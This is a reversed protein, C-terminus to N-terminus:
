ENSKNKKNTSERAKLKANNEAIQNLTEQRLAYIQTDIEDQQSKFVVCKNVYQNYEKEAESLQMEAINVNSEMAKLRTNRTRIDDKMEKILLRRKNIKEKEILIKPNLEKIESQYTKTKEAYDSKITALRTQMNLYQNTKDEFQAKLDLWKKEPTFMVTIVVLHQKAIQTKQNELDQIKKYIELSKFVSQNWDNREQTRRVEDDWGKQHYEVDRKLRSLEDIFYQEPSKLEVSHQMYYELNVDFDISQEIQEIMFEKLNNHEESPPLWTRVMHLMDNYKNLLQEKEEITVKRQEVAQKYYKSSKDGYIRMAEAVTM